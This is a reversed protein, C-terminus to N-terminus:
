GTHERILDPSDMTGSLNGTSDQEIHFVIRLEMGSVALKGEWTGIFNDIQTFAVSFCFLLISTLYFKKYM